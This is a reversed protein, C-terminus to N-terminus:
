RVVCLVLLLCVDMGGTPYSGVVEAPSFGCVTRSSTGAYTGRVVVNIRHIKDAVDVYTNLSRGVSTHRKM